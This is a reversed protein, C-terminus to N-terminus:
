AFYYSCVFYIMGSEATKLINGNKMWGAQGKKSSFHRLAFGLSRTM